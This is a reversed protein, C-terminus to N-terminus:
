RDDGKNVRLVASLDTVVNFYHEKAFLISQISKGSTTPDFPETFAYMFGCPDFNVGPTYHDVKMKERAHRWLYQYRRESIAQKHTPDQWAGVSTWYPTIAIVYGGSKMIRYVETWFADWDPVHEVFHNAFIVDVSDDEFPWPYSFLDVRHDANPAYLDVSKYGDRPEQGGGFDLLTGGPFMGEIEDLVEHLTRGDTTIDSM